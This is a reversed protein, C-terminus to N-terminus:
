EKAEVPKSSTRVSRRLEELSAHYRKNLLGLVEQNSKATLEAMDKMSTLLTAFARQAHQSAQGLKESGSTKAISDKLSAQWENVLDSLLDVQKRALAETTAFVKENTELLAEIDKRGSELLVSTDIGPLKLRELLARLDPKAQPTHATPATM